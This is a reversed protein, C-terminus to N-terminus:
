ILYLLIFLDYFIILRVQKLLNIKLTKLLSSMEEINKKYTIASGIGVGSAGYRIALPATLNSLGSSTIIPINVSNQLYFNYDM